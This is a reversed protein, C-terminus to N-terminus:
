PVNKLYLGRGEIGTMFPRLTLPRHRVYKLITPAMEEYYRILDLKTLGYDPWLLKDPSTVRVGRVEIPGSSAPKPAGAGRTRRGSAERGARSQRVATSRPSPM